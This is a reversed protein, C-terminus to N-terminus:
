WIDFIISCPTVTITAPVPDDNNTITCTSTGGATVNLVCSNSTNPSYSVAYGVPTVETITYTGPAVSLSNSGDAEFQIPSGNNVKFSFNSATATGGSNNTVTKNVVITGPMADGTLLVDDLRFKDSSNDLSVGRFRLRFNANNNAGSPLTHSAQAWNSQTPSSDYNVLVTWNSGGDASWEVTMEDDSALGGPIKYWYSLVINQQGATSINKRLEDDNADNVEAASSGAHTDNIISWDNSVASWNTFNGTEFGDSFITAAQADQPFALLSGM